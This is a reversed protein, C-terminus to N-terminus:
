LSFPAETIQTQIHCLTLPMESSSTTLFCAGPSLQPLQYPVVTPKRLSLLSYVSRVVSEPVTICVQAYTPEEHLCNRMRNSAHHSEVQKGM